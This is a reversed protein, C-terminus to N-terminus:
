DVERWEGFDGKSLKLPKKKKNKQKAKREMARITKASQIEARELDQKAFALKDQEKKMKKMQRANVDQREAIEVARDYDIGHKKILQKVKWDKPNMRQMDEIGEKLRWADELYARITRSVFFRAVIQEPCDKMWGFVNVRVSYWNKFLWKLYKLFEGESRAKTWSKWYQWIIRQTLTSINEPQADPFHKEFLSRWIDGTAAQTPVFGTGDKRTSRGKSFADEKKNRSRTRVAIAVEEFDDSGTSSKLTRCKKKKSKKKNRKKGATNGSGVSATTGSCPSATTECDKNLRKPVKIQPKWDPNISYRSPKDSRSTKERLIVGREVLGDIIKSARNRCSTFPAAYSKGDKDFVGESFQRFSINEWWKNWGITREFVFVVARFELASLDHGWERNIKRLLNRAVKWDKLENKNKSM